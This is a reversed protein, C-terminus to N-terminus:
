SLPPGVHFWWLALGAGFVWDFVACFPIYWSPLATTVRRHHAIDWLGHLGYAAPVVWATVWLGILAAALFGFAVGAETELVRARGDQLAFGVYIGAVLALLVAALQHSASVPILAHIPLSALALGGGIKAPHRTLM